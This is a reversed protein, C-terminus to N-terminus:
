IFWMVKRCGMMLSTGYSKNVDQLCWDWLFLGVGWTYLHTWLCCYKGNTINTVRWCQFTWTKLFVTIIISVNFFCCCCVDACIKCISHWNCNLSPEMLWSDILCVMYELCSCVVWLSMNDPDYASILRIFFFFHMVPPFLVDLRGTHWSLSEVFMTREVPDIGAEVGLHLKFRKLAWTDLIQQQTMMNTFFTQSGTTKFWLQPHFIQTRFVENKLHVIWKALLTNQVINAICFVPANPTSFYKRQDPETMACLWFLSFWWTSASFFFLSLYTSFLTFIGRMLRFHCRQTLSLVSFFSKVQFMQATSIVLDNMPLATRHLKKWECWSTLTHVVTIFM